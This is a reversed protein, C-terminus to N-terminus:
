DRLWRVFSLVETNRWMWFRELWDAGRQRPTRGEGRVFRNRSVRGALGSRARGCHASARHLAQYHQRARQLFGAGHSVRLDFVRAPGLRNVIREVDGRSNCCQVAAGTAASVLHRYLNSALWTM